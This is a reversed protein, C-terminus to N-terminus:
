IFSDKFKDMYHKKNTHLPNDLIYNYLTKNKDESNYDQNISDCDDVQKTITPTTTKLNNLYSDNRTLYQNITDNNTNLLQKNLNNAEEVTLITDNFYNNKFYNEDLKSELKNSQYNSDCESSKNHLNDRIQKLNNVQKTKLYDYQKEDKNEKCDLIDDLIQIQNEPKIAGDNNCYQVSLVCNVKNKYDGNYIDKNNLDENDLDNKIGHDIYLKDDIISSIYGIYKYSEDIDLKSKIYIAENNKFKNTNDVQILDPNDINDKDHNVKDDNDKDKDNKKIIKIIDGGKPPKNSSILNCKNKLHKCQINDILNNNNKNKRDYIIYKKNNINDILNKIKSNDLIYNFDIGKDFISETININQSLEIYEGNLVCFIKSLMIPVGLKRIINELKNIKSKLIIISNKCKNVLEKNISNSDTYKDRLKTEIVKFRKILDEDPISKDILEKYKKSETELEDIKIKDNIKLKKIEDSVKNKYSYKLKNLNIKSEEKYITNKYINIRSNLNNKFKIIENTKTYDKYYLKLLSNQVCKYKKKIEDLNPNSENIGKIKKLLMHYEDNIYKFNADNLNNKMLCEKELNNIQKKTALYDALFKKCINTTDYTEINRRHTKTDYLSVLILPKYNYGELIYYKQNNPLFPVFYIHLNNDDYKNRDISLKLLNLLIKIYKDKLNKNLNEHLIKLDIEVFKDLMQNCIKNPGEVSIKIDTDDLPYLLTGEQKLNYDMQKGKSVIDSNVDRDGVGSRPRPRPRPRPGVEARDWEFVGRDQTKEKIDLDNKLKTIANELDPNKVNLLNFEDPIDESDSEDSKKVLKYSKFKLSDKLVTYYKGTSLKLPDSKFDDDTYMELIYNEPIDFANIPPIDGNIYKVNLKLDQGWGIDTRDTRKITISYKSNTSVSFTDPYGSNIPKASIELNTTNSNTFIKKSDNNIEMLYPSGSIITKINNDASSGVNLILEPPNNLEEKYKESLLEKFEDFKTEGEFLIITEKDFDDFNKDFINTTYLKAFKKSEYSSLDIEDGEETNTILEIIKNRIIIQDGIVKINFKENLYTNFLDTDNKNEAKSYYSKFANILRKLSMNKNVIDIFIKDLNSLTNEKHIENLFNYLQSRESIIRAEDEGQFSEIIDNKSLENKVSFCEIDYKDSNNDNIFNDYNNRLNRKMEEEVIKSSNFRIRIPSFISNMNNVIFKDLFDENIYNIMKKSNIKPEFDFKHFVININNNKKKCKTSTFKEIRNYFLYIVLILIIILVLIIKIKINIM